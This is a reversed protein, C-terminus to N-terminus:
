KVCSLTQSGRSYCTVGNTSDHYVMVESQYTKQWEKQKDAPVVYDKRCAGLLILLILLRKM